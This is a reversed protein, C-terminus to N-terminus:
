KRFVAIFGDLLTSQSPPPSVAPYEAVYVNQDFQPTFIAFAMGAPIHCHANVHSSLFDSHCARLQSPETTCMQFIIPCQVM